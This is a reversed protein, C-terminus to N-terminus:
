HDEVRYGKRELLHKVKVGYPCIHRPMVMRYLVATRNPTQANTM